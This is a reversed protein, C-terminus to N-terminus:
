ECPFRYQRFYKLRALVAAAGPERRLGWKRNGWNHFASHNSTEPMLALHVGIGGRDWINRRKGGQGCGQLHCSTPTAPLDLSSCDGNIGSRGKQTRTGSLEGLPTQMAWPHLCMWGHCAAYVDQSHRIGGCPGGLTAAAHTSRAPPEVSSRGSPYQLLHRRLLSLLLAGGSQERPWVAPAGHLWAGEELSEEKASQSVQWRSM